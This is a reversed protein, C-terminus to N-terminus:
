KNFSPKLVPKAVVKKFLLYIVSYPLTFNENQKMRENKSKLTNEWSQIISFHM